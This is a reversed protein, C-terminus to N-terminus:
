QSLIEKLSKGEPYIIDSIRWGKKTKKIEYILTRPGMNTFVVKVKVPFESNVVKVDVNTPYKEDYDQADIIPDFDLNCIGQEKEKCKEDRLFLSNLNRDFYQLLKEKNDLWYKDQQYDALYEKYLRQIFHEPSESVRDLAFSYGASFIILLIAIFAAKM